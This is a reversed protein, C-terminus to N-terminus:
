SKSGKYKEMRDHILKTYNDVNAKECDQKIQSITLNVISEIIRDVDMPYEKPRNFYVTFRIDRRNSAYEQFEPIVDEGWFMKVNNYFREKLLPMMSMAEQPISKKFYFQKYDKNYM